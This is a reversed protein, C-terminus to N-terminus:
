ARVIDGELFGLLPEFARLSEGYAPDSDPLMSQARFYDMWRHVDGRHSSYTLGVLLCRSIRPRRRLLAEPLQSCCHLLSPFQARVRMTDALPELVDAATELDGAKIYCDFADLERGHRALWVAARAYVTARTADAAGCLVIHGAFLPLPVL